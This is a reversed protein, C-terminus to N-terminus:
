LLKYKLADTEFRIWNEKNYPIDNEKDFSHTFCRFIGYELDNQM